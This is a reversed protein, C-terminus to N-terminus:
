QNRRTDYHFIQGTLKKVQDSMLYAAFNAVEESDSIVGVYSENRAKQHVFEPLERTMDSMLYGPTIANVLIGKAGWEAAMTKTLNILGAKSAAYATQGFNGRLGTRSVVNIIKPLNSKQLLPLLGASIKFVASLNIEVSEEFESEELKVLTHDKSVGANHILGDLRPFNEKVASVFDAVSKRNGLNVSYGHAGLKELDGARETHTHYTFLVKANERAFTRVLSQGLGGTGGTVLIIKNQLSVEM